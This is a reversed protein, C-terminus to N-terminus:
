VTLLKVLSLIHQAIEVSAGPRAAKMAKDSMEAMLSENGLIEEIAIALTTSDLEDETIVKSGAIDAMIFANKTQHGEAVNPSPILISPKGTALIESCTMAGARSVVLDAAAYALDMSHLFSSLLLRPHDRVLSEMEDFAQVGTQWIIFMNKHEQLMQYYINLLAINIANAGFSGGLVLVVKAESDGAKKAAKPFLHSRAVAKSAYHRLSLRVPNGSVICKHKPFYELSSNFAVFILDAFLSLIRNAIGPMSNQEQIVLKLGNLAAALCVPLSVYGGTGFVVQPDFDNVVKRCQVVYKFLRFPLLLNQLSFLPRTLPVAPISVFDYGASPIATSEMGHKTGVFLVQISPNITKLEDAIAVAPYIHGGTGGAAFMIRLDDGIRTPPSHNERDVALCCSLKLSRTISTSFSFSPSKLKLVSNSSIPTLSLLTISDM